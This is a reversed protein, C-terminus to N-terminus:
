IVGLIIQFIIWLVGMSLASTKNAGGGEGRARLGGSSGSPRMETAGFAERGSGPIKATPCEGRSDSIHKQAENSYETFMYKFALNTNQSVL